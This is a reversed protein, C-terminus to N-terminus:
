SRSLCPTPYLGPNSYVKIEGWCLVKNRMWRREGTKRGEGRRKRRERRERGKERKRKGERKDGYISYHVFTPINIYIALSRVAMLLPESIGAGHRDKPHLPVM